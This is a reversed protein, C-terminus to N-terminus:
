CKRFKALSLGPKYSILGQKRLVHFVVLFHARFVNIASESTLRTTKDLQYANFLLLAHRKINILQKIDQKSDRKDNPQM